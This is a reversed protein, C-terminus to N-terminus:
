NLVYILFNVASNFTILTHSLHEIIVLWDPWEPMELGDDSNAAEYVTPIARWAHCFM